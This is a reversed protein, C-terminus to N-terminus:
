QVIVEIDDVGMKQLVGVSMIIEALGGTNQSFFPVDQFGSVAVGDITLSLRNIDLNVTVEFTQAVDLKWPVGIGEEPSINNFDLLNGARYTLVGIITGESDLIGINAAVPVQPDSNLLSQWRLLYVGRGPPAGEVFGRFAVSGNQRTPSDLLLPNKSLDGVQDQVHVRGSQGTILELRDWVQDGQAPPSINPPKGVDDSDFNAKFIYLLTFTAVCTKDGNMTVSTAAGAASCDPDGSWGSFVSAKDPIATLRVQTGAPFSESCDQGCDIGAPLSSVSGRGTGATRVTLTHSLVDNDQNTVAVDSPDLGNYNPDNSGAPATVITYAIDGDVVSDDLGTVVVTQAQNWNALGFSVSIPSVSGESTDSSSIRVTVDAIPQSNLVLTFRDTGGAETTVLGAIPNVTIGVADNDQNTLSVDAPDLGNYSPDNSTAPDTFITYAVPGDAVDDDQGTVTVTQAQNWNTSTFTLSQASVRGETGDSSSLGINVNATPQSQLVVTFTATGGAETTVLGILPNVLIGFQDDDRNTVGVDDPDIVNYAADNSSATTIILYDVDEDDIDDNVGTVTVRQEINWNTATFTLSSLSLSGETTDSSRLRITVPARPQSNLVLSFSDSGGAETTVLGAIPNVTIGVTDNDQNTLTVDEADMGNYIADSSSAAATVITYDVDGDAVDDNQGTITVVQERNWNAVTFTLSNPSVTGELTNDSTLGITVPATPQSRLVVTFTDTGGAETTVLGTTPNVTIGAGSASDNDQNLVSVDEADRGEYHLDESQAPDIEITYSVDGDVSDDDKGTITVTQVQNWNESTFTLSPVSVTGESTDNSSLTIFVDAKPPTNLVVTFNATGGDETTVLGSVPSVRIGYNCRSNPFLSDNSADIFRGADFIDIGSGVAFVGEEPPAHDWQNNQAFLIGTSSNNTLDADENCSLRNHGLSGKAGGGMDPQAPNQISVGTKNGIFSNSQIRPTSADDIQLARTFGDADFDGFLNGLIEPSGGGQVWLAVAGCQGCLDKFVNNEIVLTSGKTDILSDFQGNEQLTLGRITADNAGLIGPGPTEDDDKNPSIFDLIALQGDIAQGELTVGETLPLPVAEGNAGGFPYVGPKVLVVEGAKALNMAKGITKCPSLESGCDGGDNGLQGDVLRALVISLPLSQYINPNSRLSVKIILDSQIPLQDPATYTVAAGTEPLIGVKIVTGNEDEIRWDLTADMLLGLLAPSLAAQFQQSGRVPISIVNPSITMPPSVSVPLTVSVGPLLDAMASGLFLVRKKNDLIEVVFLRASGSPVALPVTVTGGTSVDLDASTLADGDASSVTIRLSAISESVSPARLAKSRNGTNSQPLSLTIGVASTSEPAGGGSAGPGCAAFFLLLFFLALTRLGVCHRTGNALTKKKLIEM